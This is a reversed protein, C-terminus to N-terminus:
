WDFGFLDRRCVVINVYILTIAMMVDQRKHLNFGYSALGLAGVLALGGWVLVARGGGGLVHIAIVGAIYAALLVKLLDGGIVRRAVARKDAPVFGDGILRRGAFCVGSVIAGSVSVAVLYADVSGLYPISALITIMVVASAWWKPVTRRRAAAAAAAAAAAVLSAPRDVEAAGRGGVAGGEVRDDAQLLSELEAIRAYLEAVKADYEARPVTLSNSPAADPTTVQLGHASRLHRYRDIWRVRDRCLACLVLTTSLLRGLGANATLRDGDDDGSEFRHGCTCIEIHAACPECLLTHCCTTELVERPAKPLAGCLRCALCAVAAPPTTFSTHVPACPDDDTGHKIQGDNEDDSPTTTSTSPFVMAEKGADDDNGDETPVWARDGGM